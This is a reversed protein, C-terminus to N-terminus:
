AFSGGRKRAHEHLHRRRKAEVGVSPTATVTVVKETWLVEFVEVKENLDSIVTTTSYSKSYFSESSVDLSPAPTALIANAGSSYSTSSASSDSPTYSAGSEVAVFM